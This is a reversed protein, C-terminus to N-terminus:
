EPTRLTYIAAAVGALISLLFAVPEAHVSSSAHGFVAFIYYIIADFLVM